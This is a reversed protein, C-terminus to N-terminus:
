TGATRRRYRRHQRYLSEVDLDLRVAACGFAQRDTLGNERCEQLVNGVALTTALRRCAPDQWIEDVSLCRARAYDTLTRQQHQELAAEIDSHNGPGNRM